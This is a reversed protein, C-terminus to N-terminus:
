QNQLRGLLVCVCVCECVYKFSPASLEAARSKKRWCIRFKLFYLTILVSFKSLIVAVHFTVTNHIITPKWLEEAALCSNGKHPVRAEESLLAPVTSEDKELHFNTHIYGQMTLLFTNEKIIEPLKYTKKKIECVTLAKRLDTWEMGCVDHKRLTQVDQM